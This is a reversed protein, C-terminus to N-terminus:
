VHARGIEGEAVFTRLSVIQKDTFPLDRFKCLNTAVAFKAKKGEYTAETNRDMLYELFGPHQSLLQRGWMHHTLSLLVGFGATRVEPFPNQAATLVEKLLHHANDGESLLKHFFQFGMDSEADTNAELVQSVVQLSHSKFDVDLGRLIAKGIYGVINFDEFGLVIAMGAHTAALSGVAGLAAHKVAPDDSVIDRAISAALKFQHNLKAIDMHASQAIKGLVDYLPPLLLAAMPDDSGRSLTACLKMIVMKHELYTFGYPTGALSSILEIYNLQLLVDDGSFCHVLAELGGHADVTALAGASSSAAKVMLEDVRMKCTSSMARVDRLVSATDPAFLFELGQPSVQAVKLLLAGVKAAVALSEDGLLQSARVLLNSFESLLLDAGEKDDLAQLLANLTMMKTEADMDSLGAEIQLGYSALLPRAGLSRTIKGMIGRALERARQNDLSLCPVLVELPFATDMGAPGVWRGYLDYLANVSQLSDEVAETDGAAVGQTIQEVLVQVDKIRETM